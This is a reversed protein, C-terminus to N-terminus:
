SQAAFKARQELAKELGPLKFIRDRHSKLTKFIDEQGPKIYGLTGDTVDALLFDLWTVKNGVVYGTGNKELQKTFVPVISELVFKFAAIRAENVKDEPFGMKQLSIWKGTLGSFDMLHEAFADCLAQEELTSALAGHKAGIYRYIATTQAIEINNEVTLVPVQGFPTTPKIQLWNEPMVFSDKFPVKLYEMLLRMGGARGNIPFYKLEYVM